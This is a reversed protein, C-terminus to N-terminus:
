SGRVEGGTLRIKTVGCRAFVSALRVIEDTTLMRELPTLPVGDEPMCYQCRLNCKETLSIRLYTHRRGFRDTLTAPSVIDPVANDSASHTECSTHVRASAASWGCTRM